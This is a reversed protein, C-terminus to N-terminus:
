RSVNNIENPIRLNHSKGGGKKEKIVGERIFGKTYESVYPNKQAPTM